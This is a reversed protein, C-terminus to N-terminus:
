RPPGRTSFGSIRRSSRRAAAAPRQGEQFEHPQPCAPQRDPQRHGHPRHHGSERRGPRAGAAGARSGPDPPLDQPGLSVQARLLQHFLGGEELTLHLEQDELTQGYPRGLIPLLLKGELIRNPPHWDIDFFIAYPSSQGNELVEMWWPNDPSLAMHNPIIDFLM